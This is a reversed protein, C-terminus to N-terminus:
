HAGSRLCARCPPPVLSSTSAVASPQTPRKQSAAPRAACRLASAVRRARLTSSRGATPNWWGDMWGRVCACARVQDFITNVDTEDDKRVTFTMHYNLWKSSKMWFTDLPFLNYNYKPVDIRYGRLSGWKNTAKENVMHVM